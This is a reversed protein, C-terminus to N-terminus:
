QISCQADENLYDATQNLIYHSSQNYAYTLDRVAQTIVDTDDYDEATPAARAQSTTAVTTSINGKQDNVAEAHETHQM